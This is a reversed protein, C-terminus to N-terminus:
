PRSAARAPRARAGLWSRIGDVMQRLADLSASIDGPVQLAHDAGPVEIVELAPNDPIADRRWMSDATGGLLLTPPRVRALDKVLSDETLAPTLWVAELGRDSVLGALLSALSKGVVLVRNSGAAALAREACEREWGVPDPRERPEGLVELAGWGEAILAERAFWLVPARTPYVMGPLLVACRDQDPGHRIAACPGLDIREPM